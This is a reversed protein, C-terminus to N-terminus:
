CGRNGFGVTPSKSYPRSPVRSDCRDVRGFLCRGAKVYVGM